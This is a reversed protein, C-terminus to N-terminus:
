ERPHLLAEFPPYGRLSGVISPDRHLYWYYLTSVLVPHRLENLLRVAGVKDGLLALIAVRGHQCSEAIEVEGSVRDLLPPAFAADAVAKLERARALAEDRRGQRAAIRGLAAPLDCRVYAPRKESRLANEAVRRAEDLQDTWELLQLENDVWTTNGSERRSRYDPIAETFLQKAADVHGHAWLEMGAPIARSGMSNAVEASGESERVIRRVAEVDGLGAYARIAMGQARRRDDPFLAAFREAIALGERHRGLHDLAISAQELVVKRSNGLAPMSDMLPLVQLVTRPRDTYAAHGVLDVLAMEPSVAFDRRSAHFATERDGAYYPRLIALINREDTRVNPHEALRTFVSDRARPPFAQARIIRPLVWNSDLEIMREFRRVFEDWAANHYAAALEVYARAAGLSATVHAGDWIRRDGWRQQYLLLVFAQEQLRAALTADDARGRVTATLRVRSGPMRLLELVCSTDGRTTACHTRLVLGAGTRRALRRVRAEPAERSHAEVLDRVTAAPIPSGLGEERTIAAPLESLARALTPLSDTGQGELPAVLVRDAVVPAARTTVLWALLGAAALVGGVAVPLTGRWSPRPPALPEIPKTTRGGSTTSPLSDLVAVLEAAQQPRDAPNKSLCQMVLAELAPPVSPRHRSLPEPPDTLHAAMVKDISSRVFPVQGGILEYAVVGWTYLDARHDLAQDAAVQEPAMYPVTGIAIGMNTKLEPLGATARGAAVAKAVGFDLVLALGESLRVNEPKLDRHVVGAAHAHGLAAAIDRLIRVAEGIPLDRGRELRERLSEGAVFTMTYFPTGAADGSDLLPVINVHSLQAAIVIERAFRAVGEIAVLDARLVKLAVVRGHKLEVARYVTAMGGEGLVGELRYRDALAAVLSAPIV